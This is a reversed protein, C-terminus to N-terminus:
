CFCKSFQGCRKHFREELKKSGTGTQTRISIKQILFTTKLSFHHTFFQFEFNQFDNTELPLSLGSFDFLRIRQVLQHVFPKRLTM